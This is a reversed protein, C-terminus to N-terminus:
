ARQCSGGGFGRRRRERNGCLRSVGAAGACRESVRSLRAPGNVFPVLQLLAPVNARTDALEVLTLLAADIELPAASGVHTVLASILGTQGVISKMAGFLVRYFACGTQRQAPAAGRVLSGALATASAGLLEVCAAFEGCVAGCLVDGNLLENAVLRRILADADRAGDPGNTHLCLLFWVDCVGLVGDVAVGQELAAVARKVAAELKAAWAKVVDRRAALALRLSDILLAVADVKGVHSVSSPM